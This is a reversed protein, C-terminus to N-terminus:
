LAALFRARLQQPGHEDNRSEGSASPFMRRETPPHVDRQYTMAALAFSFEAQVRVNVPEYDQGM